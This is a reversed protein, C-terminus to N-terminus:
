NGTPEGCLSYCISESYGDISAAYDHSKVLHDVSVELKDDKIVLM